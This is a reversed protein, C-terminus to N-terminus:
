KEKHELKHLEELSTEIEQAAEAQLESEIKEKDPFGTARNKFMQEIMSLRETETNGFKIKEPLTGNRICDGLAKKAKLRNYKVKEDYEYGNINAFILKINVYNSIQGSRVIRGIIQEFQSCTWVLGNFILNNCVFQLGDLGVAFPRSAILVDIEGKIFPSDYIIDGHEDIRGTDRHHGSKDEGTFLGVRIDNQVLENYIMDVIGTTYDTYIITQGKM